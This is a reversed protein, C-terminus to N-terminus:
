RLAPSGNSEQLRYRGGGFRNAVVSADVLAADPQGHLELLQRECMTALAPVLHGYRSHLSYLASGAARGSRVLDTLGNRLRVAPTSRPDIREAIRRSAWEFGGVTHRPEEIREILTLLQEATIFRPFLDAAVGHVIRDPWSAPRELVDRAVDALDDGRGCAVLARVAVVRLHPSASADFAVTRALDACDNVPGQWVMEILLERVEDNTTTKWCDPDITGSRPAGVQSSGRHTREAGELGRRRVRWRIRERDASPYARRAIGSGGFLAASGAGTRGAGHSRFRGLSRAVRCHCADLPISHRRRLVDLVALPAASRYVHGQQAVLVSVSGCPVGSDLSPPLSRARLHGSRLARM